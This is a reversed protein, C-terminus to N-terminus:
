PPATTLQAPDLAIAHDIQAFLMEPTGSNDLVVDACEIKKDIAMQSNIRAQIQSPNLHDRQQLREMQQDPHCHVVWIETVLDTMRAEFLLPVVLVAIPHQQIDSLPLTQLATALATYVYPHIQQELWQRETASTFIIDSLRQRNLSGDGHLIGPGYRDRIHALLVSEPAVAARALVDADLIPLQHVQALYDSILTKGM